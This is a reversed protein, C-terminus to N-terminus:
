RGRRPDTQRISVILTTSISATGRRRRARQQCTDSCYEAQRHKYFYWENCAGDSCRQLRRWLAIKPNVVVRELFDIAGDAVIQRARRGESTEPTDMKSPDCRALSELDWRADHPEIRKDIRAHAISYDHCWEVFDSVTTAIAKHLSWRQPDFPLQFPPVDFARKNAVALFRRKAEQDDPRDKAALLWARGSTLDTKERIPM